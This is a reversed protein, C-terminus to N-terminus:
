TKEEVFDSLLLTFCTSALLLPPFPQGFLTFEQYYIYFHFFLILSAGM